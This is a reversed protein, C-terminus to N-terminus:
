TPVLLEKKDSDAESISDDKQPVKRSPRRYLAALLGGLTMIGTGGWVLWTFPKQFVEIPYILSSTRFQLQASKDAANMSLLNVELSDDLVAPVQLPQGGDSLQLGPTAKHKHNGDDITLDAQFQTGANGAEGIRKIGNYTVKLTGIMKTDGPKMDLTTGDAKTPAYLTIYTDYFLHREIHPWIMAQEQGGMEVYYLGPMATFVKKGDKHSIVDIKVKNNRDFKTSTQGQYVLMYDFVSAPEGEIMTTQIKREFGRSMILGAMLVAVGIHAIFPSWGLKSAKRIEWIRWASGVFGFICLGALFLMWWMGTVTTGFPFRIEPRLDAIQSMPTLVLGLMLFGTLGMTICFVSYFRGWFEKPAMKRWSVFPAVGMLIMLPVFLYPIVMHYLGEEVVKPQKGQLAQFLPVSMGILTALGFGLLIIVGGSYFTERDLGKASAVPKEAKKYQILRWIWAGLFGVFSVGLVGILLKLASRDMEAFSHVSADALFGSRTLFTGYLFTLFPLAGLMLNAFVWKQKTNQVIIGHVFAAGIVWPVFSVNEVPDWMWFGGWGLTEYAWFGGMCLGVGVIATATIAWPRVMPIWSKFDKEALAAISYAFLVTLAGFGLFITPPHITVWYNNLSPALGQGSPPVIPKGDALILKFPSEYALIGCIASLFLSSVITFWRRYKGAGFSAWVTFIAACLGWLLFSGQQGSWIGAIRYPLTSLADTHGWVYEFELRMNAFLIALALFTAGIGMSGFIFVIRAAKGLKENKGAFLYLLAAALLSFAAIVVSVRGLVGLQLSWDPPSQLPM